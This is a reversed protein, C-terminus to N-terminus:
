KGSLAGALTMLQSMDVPTADAPKSIDDGSQDFLLVVNLHQGPQVDGPKAFQALDLSLKSLAGNTVWADLVISHDPVSTPKIVSTALGAQPMDSTVTHFLDGILTRSQTTVQLHDGQSDTGVRTVTVDRGLVTRLDNLLKQTQASNPTASAGAGFQSALSKLSNLDLSVWKGQVLAKVFEPMSAVRATIDAYQSGKGFLDLISKLDAQAYLANDLTRIEALTQGNDQFAFRAQTKSTSGSKASSLKSGDSTKAEIVLAAAALDAAQQQTLPKGKADSKSLAILAAPTTDLKLTVTLADTNGIASVSSTFAAKPDQSATKTATTGNGCGAVFGVVALAAIASFRTLAPRM